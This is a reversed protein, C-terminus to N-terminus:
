FLGYFKGINLIMEFCLDIFFPGVSVNQLNRRLVLTLLAFDGELHFRLVLPENFLLHSM